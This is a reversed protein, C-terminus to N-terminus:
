TVDTRSAPRMDDPLDVVRRGEADVVGADRLRAQQERVAQTGREISITAWARLAASAAVLDLPGQEVVVLEGPSEGVVAVTARKVM